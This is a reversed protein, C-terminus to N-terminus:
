GTPRRSPWHSCIMATRLCRESLLMTSIWWTIPLFRPESKSLMRELSLTLPEPTVSEPESLVKGLTTPDKYAYRHRRTSLELEALRWVQNCDLDVRYRPCGMSASISREWGIIFVPRKMQLFINTWIPALPEGCSEGAQPVHWNETPLHAGCRRSVGLLRVLYDSYLAVDYGLRAELNTTPHFTGSRQRCNRRTLESVLDFQFQAESFEAVPM